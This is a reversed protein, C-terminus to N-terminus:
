SQWVTYARDGYVDVYVWTRWGHVSSPLQPQCVLMLHVAQAFTCRQLTSVKLSPDEVLGYSEIFPQVTESLAEYELSDLDCVASRLLNSRLAIFILISGTHM